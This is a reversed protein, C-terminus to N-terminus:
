CSESPNRRGSRPKMSTESLWDNKQSNFVRMSTPPHRKKKSTAEEDGHSLQSPM